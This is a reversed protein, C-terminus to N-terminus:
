IILQKLTDASNNAPTVNKKENSINSKKIIHTM